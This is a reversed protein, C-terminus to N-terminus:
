PEDFRIAARATIPVHAHLERVLQRLQVMWALIQRQERSRFGTLDLDRLYRATQEASFALIRATPRDLTLRYGDRAVPTVTCPTLLRGPMTTM